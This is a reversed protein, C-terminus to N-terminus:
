QKWSYPDIQLWEQGDKVSLEQKVQALHYRGVLAPNQKNYFKEAELLPPLLM